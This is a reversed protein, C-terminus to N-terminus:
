RTAGTLAALSELACVTGLLLGAGSTDGVACLLEVSETLREPDDTVLGALLARLEPVVEGRAACALLTASLTTTRESASLAVSRRVEELGPHRTAVATALWGGLVDDGLPTLGPGSGLLPRVAEADGSCLSQLAAGSLLGRVEAAAGAALETLRGAAETALAHALVPVTTDVIETVHVRLGSLTVSGDGVTARPDGDLAPLSPLPTRIGCPVQVARAGLVGICTGELDVYVADPGAHVVRVARTPGAVQGLVQISASGLVRVDDHPFGAGPTM